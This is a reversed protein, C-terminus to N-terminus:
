ARGHIHQLGQLFGIQPLDNRAGLLGTLYGRDFRWGQLSQERMGIAIGPAQEIGKFRQRQGGQTLAM